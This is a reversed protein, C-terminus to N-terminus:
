SGAKRAVLRCWDIFTAQPLVNKMMNITPHVWQVNGMEYGLDSDVCDLSALTVGPALTDKVVSLPVNTLACLRQQKLFLEWLYAATVTFSLGRAKASTAFHGVFSGRLEGANGYQSPRPNYCGCSRVEGETRAPKTLSATGKLFEKGCRCRVLWMANGCSDRQDTPSLVTLWGVQRGALEKAWGSALCGCSRPLLNEGGRARRKRTINSGELVYEKGCVCRVSWQLQGRTNRGALRLVTLAGFVRGTLDRFGAM